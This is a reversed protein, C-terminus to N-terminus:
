SYDASREDNGQPTSGVPKAPEDAFKTGAAVISHCSSVPFQTWFSGARNLSVDEPDLIDHAVWSVVVRSPYTEANVSHFIVTKELLWHEIGRNVRM